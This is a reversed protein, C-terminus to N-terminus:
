AAVAALILLGAGTAPQLSVILQLTNRLAETKRKRPLKKKKFRGALGKIITTKSM